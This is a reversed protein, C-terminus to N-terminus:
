GSVAVDYVGSSDCGAASAESGDWAGDVSDDGVGLSASSGCCDEM